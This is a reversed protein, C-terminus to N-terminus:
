FIEEGGEKKAICQKEKRATIERKKLADKKKKALPKCQNNTQIHAM